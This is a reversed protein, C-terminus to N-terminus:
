RNRMLSRTDESSGAPPGLSGNLPRSPHYRVHDEIDSEVFQTTEDEASVKVIVANHHDVWLGAALTM